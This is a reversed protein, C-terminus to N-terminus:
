HVDGLYIESKIEFANNEKQKIVSLVSDATRQTEFVGAMLAITKENTNKSYYSLYELSLCGSPFRRQFYNGAYMVDEDNDPLAILNKTKNFYRGMTDITLNLTKNLQFMKDHLSYYNMSTDAIVLYYIAKESDSIQQSISNKNQDILTDSIKSTSDNGAVENTNESSNTSCASFILVGFILLIYSKM